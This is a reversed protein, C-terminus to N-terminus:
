PWTILYEMSQHIGAFIDVISADNYMYAPTSIIKNKKDFVSEHAQATIHKHGLKEIEAATQKDNGITLELNENELIKGLVAPAICLAVIPIKLGFISRVFALISEDISSGSGDFAFTSFNKAVGFGGPMILADFNEAKVTSLDKIDGRAIRASEVLVNRVETSEKGKLHDMTHYQNINPALWHIKYESDKLCQELALQSLVSERIEAGDMFGCGSLLIAINKVFGGNKLLM